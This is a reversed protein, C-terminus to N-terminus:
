AYCDSAHETLMVLPEPLLPVGVCHAERLSMKLIGKCTECKKTNRGSRKNADMVCGHM